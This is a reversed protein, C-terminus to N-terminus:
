PSVGAQRSLELLRKVTQDLDGRDSVEQRLYRNIVPMMRIARDIEPNSGKAYAGINILDEAERYVALIGILTRAAKLHDPSVVDPMVRSVSALPDVAPYHGQNALRRSLVIHGDLISRATDAVPDNLDDGEVLVTYLGTISGRGANGARELLRPLLSFTSPTYGKSTPPEGIALGIERQAMAVRTLSDMMLLVDLGRDRFYEAITTAVLAGKVRLLPMEDSTVAVVVSRRLGEEGLDREIFERVERGREGILAIVNVDATTNRAIMGLLVSKGVGSGAFIGLRQGKGCTLLGDISRVGTALIESIRQRELPKPPTNFIPLRDRARVPGKGDIPRGLGNLVRGLLEDGANVTITAKSNVVEAGPAIGNLEGLPMLLVRRDEFGVVEAFSRHDSRRSRIQCLDGMSAVPGLSEIVTGVVRNVKGKAQITNLTAIAQHYKAFRPDEEVQPIKPRRTAM